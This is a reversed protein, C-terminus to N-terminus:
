NEQLARTLIERADASLDSRAAVRAIAERAAGRWPEQLQQWRDMVRALRAALQPNLTDFEAMRDAWFVYGGADQRHFAAPNMMAYAFVLSRARNPNRATYDPHQLLARVREFVRGDREPATAQVAFWKDIVLAEEKFRAHFHALAAEALEAHGHVLATLAGLRETMNTADKVKQYARGPWLREGTTGAHLVLMSLALNALARRGSQDANPQYGERVQNAEYAQAWDEHLLAALQARMSERARHVHVPNVTALQEYLVSQSPV